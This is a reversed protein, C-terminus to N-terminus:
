ARHWTSSAVMIASKATVFCTPWYLLRTNLLHPISSLRNRKWLRLRAVAKWRIQLYAQHYFNVAQWPPRNGRRNAAMAAHAKPQNLTESTKGLFSWWNM